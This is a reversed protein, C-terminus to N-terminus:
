CVVIHTTKPIREHTQETSKRALCEPAYIYYWCTPHQKMSITATIVSTLTTSYKSCLGPLM